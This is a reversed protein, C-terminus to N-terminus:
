QLVAWNVRGTQATAFRITFGAPTKSVVYPPETNAPAFEPTALIIYNADPAPPDLVVSAGTAAALTIFGKRGGTNALAAAADILSELRQAPLGYGRYTVPSSSVAVGIEQKSYSILIADGESPTADLDAAIAIAGTTYNVTGSGSGGVEALVGVANDKLYIPDGNTDIITVVLSGPLIQKFKSALNYVVAGDSVVGTDEAVVDGQSQKVLTDLAAIFPRLVNQDDERLKQALVSITKTAGAAIAAGGGIEKPLVIEEAYYNTIQIQVNSM